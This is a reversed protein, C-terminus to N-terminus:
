GSRRSLTEILCSQPLRLEATPYMIDSHSLLFVEHALADDFNM